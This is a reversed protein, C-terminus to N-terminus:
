LGLEHRVATWGKTKGQRAQKLAHRVKKTEDPTLVEDADRLKAPTMSVRGAESTVEMFDGERLRLRDLITESDRNPPAARDPEIRFRKGTNETGTTKSPM